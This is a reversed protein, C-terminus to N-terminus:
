GEKGRAYDVFKKATGKGVKLREVVIDLTTGFPLELFQLYKEVVGERSSLGMEASVELLKITDKRLYKRFTKPDMVDGKVNIVTNQRVKNKTVILRYDYDEYIANAVEHILDARMRILKSSNIERTFIRRDQVGLTADEDYLVSKKMYIDDMDLVRSGMVSDVRPRLEEYSISSSFIGDVKHVISFYRVIYETLRKKGFSDIGGNLYKLRNLLSSLAPDDIGYLKKRYFVGIDPYDLAPVLVLAGGHRLKDESEVLVLYDSLGAVINGPMLKTRFGGKVVDKIRKM